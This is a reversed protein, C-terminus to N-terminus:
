MKKQQDKKKPREDGEHEPFTFLLPSLPHYEMVYPCDPLPLSQHTDM